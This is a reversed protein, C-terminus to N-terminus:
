RYRGLWSQFRSAISGAIARGPTGLYMEGKEQNDGLQAGFTLKEGTWTISFKWKQNEMEGAYEVRRGNGRYAGTSPHLVKGLQPLREMVDEATAKLFEQVLDPISADAPSKINKPAATKSLLPVLDKRLEPNSHALRILRKRLHTDIM